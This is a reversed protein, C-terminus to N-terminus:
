SFKVVTSMEHALLTISLIRWALNWYYTFWSTGSTCTPKSFASSGSVLNGVNTPGYLFCPFKLFVGVETENVISFSKHPDCCVPFNKLLHSYSVVKGGGSFRQAPWSAITLVLCSAISQNWIPFTTRWSHVNDGQNNLKYASDMM